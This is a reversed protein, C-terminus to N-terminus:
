RVDTGPILLSCGSTKGSELQRHATAADALAFRQQIDVNLGGRLQAFWHEAMENLAARGATYHFLIPRSVSASKQALLGIDLPPIPGASQGYTVVHGFTALCAISREVSDAGVADYAVDVGRGATLAMVREVIDDRTYVIVHDAGAATALAAKADSSVTGIVTAGLTKAWQCLILGVGGAASHVLLTDGAQVVHTRTLLYEATLGKLLGAAAIDDSIDPPLKVLVDTSMCRHECYAGVGGGAYAVRDGVAFDTVGEGIAEIVGAAEMGPTGPLEILHSYLGSRVYTDIFNLGIATHRIMVEGPQPATVECQRFDLVSPDGFQEVVIAHSQM